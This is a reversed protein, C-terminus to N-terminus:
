PTPKENALCQAILAMERTHQREANANAVFYVLVMTAIQMVLIVLLAPSHKLSGVVSNALQAPSM